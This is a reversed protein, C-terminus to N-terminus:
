RRLLEALTKGSVYELVLFDMDDQTGFEYVTEINPHNLKALTLAEKRFNRRSTNSTLTGPHLVKLAVDRELQEDWARYVVGMGGVGVKEVIRYHSILSGITPCADAM